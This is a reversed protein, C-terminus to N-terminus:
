RHESVTKRLTGKWPKKRCRVIALSATDIEILGATAGGFCGFQFGAFQLNRLFGVGVLNATGCLSICRCGIGAERQENIGTYRGAPESTLSAFQRRRLRVAPEKVAFGRPKVVRKWFHVWRFCFGCEGDYLIWGERPLTSESEHHALKM